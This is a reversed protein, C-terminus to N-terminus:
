GPCRGTSDQEGEEVQRREDEHLHGGEVDRLEVHVKLGAKKPPPGPGQLPPGKPGLAQIGEQNQSAQAQEPKVFDQPVM